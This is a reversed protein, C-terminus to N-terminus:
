TRLRVNLSAIGERGVRHVEDQVRELRVGLGMFAIMRSSYSAGTNVFSVISTWRVYRRDPKSATCAAKGTSRSLISRRDAFTSEFISASLSFVFALISATWVDRLSFISFVFSLISATLRGESVEIKV